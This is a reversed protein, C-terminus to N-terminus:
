KYSRQKTSSIGSVIAKAKLCPITQTKLNFSLRELTLLGNLAMLNLELISANGLTWTSLWFALHLKLDHKSTPTDIEENSRPLAVIEILKYLNCHFQLFPHVPKFWFNALRNSHWSTVKRCRWVITIKRPTCHPTLKLNWANELRGIVVGECGVDNNM